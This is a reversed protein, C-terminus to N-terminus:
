LIKKKQNKPSIKKENIYIGEKLRLESFKNLIDLNINFSEFNPIETQNFLPPSYSISYNNKENNKRLLTYTVLNRLEEINENTIEPFIGTYKVVKQFAKEFNNWLDKVIIEDNSNRLKESKVFIFGYKTRIEKYLINHWKVYNENNKKIKKFGEYLGDSLVFINRNIYHSDDYKMKKEVWELTNFLKMRTRKIFVCDAVKQLIILKHPEDFNKVICKCNGDACIAISYPINYYNFVNTLACMLLINFSKCEDSIFSSADIIINSYSCNFPIDFNEKIIYRNIEICFLSSLILSNQYIKNISLNSKYNTKEKLYEFPIPHSIGEIINENINDTDKTAKIRKILRAIDYNNEPTNNKSREKSKETESEYVTAKIKNNNKNIKDTNIEEDKEEDSNKDLYNNNLRNNFIIPAFTDILYKNDEYENM